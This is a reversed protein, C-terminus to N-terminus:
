QNKKLPDAKQEYFFIYEATTQHLTRYIEVLPQQNITNNMDEIGKSIKQRAPRETALLPIPLGLYLPPNTYKEGKLEIQNKKM